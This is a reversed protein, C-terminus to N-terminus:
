DKGAKQTYEVHEIFFNCYYSKRGPNFTQESQHASPTAKARYCKDKITCEKNDCMTIDVM